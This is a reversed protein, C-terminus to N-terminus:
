SPRRRWAKACAGEVGAYHDCVPLTHPRHEAGFLAKRPHIATLTSM